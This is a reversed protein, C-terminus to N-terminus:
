SYCEEVTCTFGAPHHTFHLVSTKEGGHAYANQRTIWQGKLHLMDGANMGKKIPEILGQRDGYRVAVFVMLKKALCEQVDKKVSATFNVINVLTIILQYHRPANVDDPLRKIISANVEVINQVALAELFAPQKELPILHAEELQLKKETTIYNELFEEINKFKGFM